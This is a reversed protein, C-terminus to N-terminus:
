RRDYVKNNTEESVEPNPLLYVVIQIQNEPNEERSIRQIQTEFLHYGMELFKSIEHNHERPIFGLKAEGFYVAVAYPDFKNDKEYQLSLRTGIKLQEFVEPGEYYTFGALRCHLFHRKKMIKTNVM